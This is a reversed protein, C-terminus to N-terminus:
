HPGVDGTSEHDLATGSSPAHAGKDATDVVLPDRTVLRTQALGPFWKMEIFKSEWRILM